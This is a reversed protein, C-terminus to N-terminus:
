RGRGPNDVCLENFEFSMAARAACPRGAAQGALQQVGVRAAGRRKGGSVIRLEGAGDM